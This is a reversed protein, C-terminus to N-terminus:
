TAPLQYESVFTSPMQIGSTENTKDYDTTNLLDPVVFCIPVRPPTKDGLCNWCSLTYIPAHRASVSDKPKVPKNKHLHLNNPSFAKRYRWSFRKDHLRSNYKNGTYHPYTSLIAKYRGEVIYVFYFLLGCIYKKGHSHIICLTFCM